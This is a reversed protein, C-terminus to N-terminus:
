LDSNYGDLANGDISFRHNLVKIGHDVTDIAVYVHTHIHLPLINQVRLTVSKVDMNIRECRLDSIYEKGPVYIQKQM